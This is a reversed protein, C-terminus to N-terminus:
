GRYNRDWLMDYMHSRCISLSIAKNLIDKIEGYEVTDVSLMAMVAKDAFLKEDETLPLYKENSGINNNPLWAIDTPDDNTERIDYSMVTIVEDNAFEVCVFVCNFYSNLESHVVVGVKGVYQAYNEKESEDYFENEPDSFMEDLADFNISMIRVVKGVAMISNSM